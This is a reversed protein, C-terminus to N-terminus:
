GNGDEELQRERIVTNLRAIKKRVIRVEATNTLQKTAIRFRLNLLERHSNDLEKALDEDSLERIDYARV